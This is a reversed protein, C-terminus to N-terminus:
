IFDEFESYQEPFKEKLEAIAADWYVKRGIKTKDKFLRIGSKEYFNTWKKHFEIFEPCFSETFMEEKRHIILPNTKSNCLKKEFVYNKQTYRPSVNRFKHWYKIVP